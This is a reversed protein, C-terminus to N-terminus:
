KSSLVNEIGEILIHTAEKADYDNYSLGAMVDWYIGDPEGKLKADEFTPDISFKAWEMARANAEIATEDLLGKSKTLELAAKSLPVGREFGMLEVGELENLLFNILKACAEKDLATESIAFAMSVKTIGGQYSGLDSLFDGIVFEQGESLASKLNNGGTDWAYAGAYIGNMWKINKDLTEAGDGKVMSLTPMVHATELEKIFEMGTKIEAENYNLKGNEIWEKGYVSQLYSVMLFMRDLEDLTLPYYEEGLKEKFIKGAELLEKYSGPTKIGAKDFTTKNYFFVRGTMAVPVAQLRDDLTCEELAKKSFQSLDIIDSYDNLDAFTKNNSGFSNIWNWNIQNVDPASKSYFQTSMKDEWGPWASYTAEVKIDPNLEEFKEIAAMTAKHREDGGWWSISVKGTKKNTKNEKKENQGCAFLMSMLLVVISIIALKKKM